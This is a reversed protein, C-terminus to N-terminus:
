TEKAIHDNICATCDHNVYLSPWQPTTFAEYQPMVANQSVHGMPAAQIAKFM